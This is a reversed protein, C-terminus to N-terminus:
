LLCIFLKFEYLLCFISYKCQQILKLHLEKEITSKIQEYLAQESIHTKKFERRYSILNM